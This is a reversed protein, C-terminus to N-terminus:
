SAAAKSWRLTVEEILQAAAALTAPQIVATDNAAGIGFGSRLVLAGGAIEVAPLWLDRAASMALDRQPGFLGLSPGVGPAELTIVLTPRDNWADSLRTSDLSGGLAIFETAFQTQAWGSRALEVLLALGTRQDADTPALRRARPWLLAIVGLLIMAIAGAHGLWTWSGYYFCPLVLAALWTMEFWSLLRKWARARSSLPSAVRGVFVIRATAGDTAAKAWARVLPRKWRAASWAGTKLKREILGLLTLGSFGMALTLPDPGFRMGFAWSTAVLLAGAFIAGCAITASPAEPEAPTEITAREVHLGAAALHAAIAEAAQWEAPSGPRRDSPFTRALGVARDADFKMFQRARWECPPKRPTLTGDHRERLCLAVWADGPNGELVYGAM